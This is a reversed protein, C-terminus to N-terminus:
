PHTLRTVNWRQCDSRMVFSEDDGDDSDDDDEDRDDCDNEERSGGDDLGPGM